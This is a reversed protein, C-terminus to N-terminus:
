PLANEQVNISQSGQRIQWALVCWEDVADRFTHVVEFGIREHARMSRGNRTSVSTVCLEFSSSNIEKHKRYLADFVGKGRYDKDICIQGMVYFEHDIIVGKGYTISALKDFMPQLVPIMDAFSRMMVLGYGIVREGDKAIIQPAAKSMQKLLTFSHMVTVFGEQSAQSESLLSSHNARQLNLIQSLEDDTTAIGYTINM